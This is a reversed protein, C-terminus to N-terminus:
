RTSTTPASQRTFRTTSSIQTLGALQLGHGGRHYDGITGEGPLVNAPEVAAAYMRRFWPWGSGANAEIWFWAHPYLRRDWDLRIALDLRPNCWTAHPQTAFGTFAAFISQRTGPGPLAYSGPIPGPALLQEPSAVQDAAALSGPAQPDTIIHDADILLYSDADLFGDGFAPHQVLRTTIPDPSTNEVTDTVALEAGTVQVRRHLRLPATSLHTQLECSHQDQALVQWTALSAEGHYGQVVGDHTREPGANPALLQWGGPYGHMWAAMSDGPPVQTRPHPTPSQALVQIGTILDHVQVIDAGREPTLHVELETSRLTLPM